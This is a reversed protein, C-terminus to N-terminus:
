NKNYTLLMKMKISNCIMKEINNINYFINSNTTIVYENIDKAGNSYNFWNLFKSNPQKEIMKLMAKKGPEDNDFAYVLTHHPYRQSIFWKQYNSLAKGGIAVGNKIWIADFVGEVCIIYKFSTDINDLGFVSKEIDKPFIYKIGNDPGNLIRRQYYCEQGNYLWPIVIFDIGSKNDKYYFFNYDKPLGPADYIRRKKLYQNAYSTLNNRYERPVEVYEICYEEKDNIDKIYIDSSEKSYKFRFYEPKIDDIPTGSLVSYLELGHAWKECRYCWYTQTNIYYHGRRTGRKKANISEMCFPCPFNIDNGHSVNNPPIYPRIKDFLWTAQDLNCLM